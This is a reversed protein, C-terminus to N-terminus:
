QHRNTITITAAVQQKVDSGLTDPDGNSAGKAEDGYARPHGSDYLFNSIIDPKANEDGASENADIGTLKGKKKKNSKKVERVCM